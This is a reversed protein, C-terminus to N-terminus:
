EGKLPNWQNDMAWDANIQKADPAGPAEKLNDKQWAYDGGEHHCNDYYVRRGYQVGPSSAAQYIQADAMNAGFTCNVLYFQADRHYRGLKFGKDGNFSCNVLVSKQNKNGSGDHWIAAEMNHCIFRCGDAYAWGRPCYFDVGGEMTCGKFYFMGEQTNWPSVTDGGLARLTCNIVKLRTTQFSRLAMQHGTHSVHREEPKNNVVCHIITDGHHDFGYSNIISLNKLTIDSGRLNLTAVGWDATNGECRWIDRAIAQTIITNKQDDGQLVIHNKTIFVKEHYIGKRIQIVRDTASSDPLSNLAEQITKFDGKGNADVVIPKALAHALVPMANVLCCAAFLIALLKKM